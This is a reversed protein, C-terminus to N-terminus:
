NLLMNDILRIGGLTAAILAVAKRSDAEELFSLNEADAVAVYDVNSDPVSWFLVRKKVFCLLRNAEPM